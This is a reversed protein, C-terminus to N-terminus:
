GKDREKITYIKGEIDLIEYKENFEILNVEEDILVQYQIGNPITFMPALVIFILFALASTLALIAQAINEGDGFFAYVLTFLACSSVIIIFWTPTTTTEITNLVEIGPMM